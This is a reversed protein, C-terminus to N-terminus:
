KEAIGNETGFAGKPSLLPHWLNAVAHMYVDAGVFQSEMCTGAKYKSSQKHFALYGGDRM